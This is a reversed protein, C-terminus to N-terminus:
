FAEFEKRHEKMFGPWESTMMFGLFEDRSIQGRKETYVTRWTEMEDQKTWSSRQLRQIERDSFLELSLEIVDAAKVKRGRSKNNARELISDLKAKIAPNVRIGCSNLENEFTTNNEKKSM